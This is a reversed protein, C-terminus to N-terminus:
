AAAPASRRTRRAFAIATLALGAVSVLIPGVVGSFLDTFLYVLGGIAAAMPLTMLWATVINGAV